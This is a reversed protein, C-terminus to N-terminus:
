KAKPALISTAPMDFRHHDLRAPGLAVADPCRKSMGAVDMNAGFAFYLRM